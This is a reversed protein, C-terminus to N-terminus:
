MVWRCLYVGVWDRTRPEVTSCVEEEGCERIKIRDEVRM